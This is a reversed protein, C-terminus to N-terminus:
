FTFIKMRIKYSTDEINDKDSMESDKIIDNPDKNLLDNNVSKHPINNLEGTNPPIYLLRGAYEENSTDYPLDIRKYDPNTSDFAVPDVHVILKDRPLNSILNNINIWNSQIIHLSSTSMPPISCDTYQYCNSNNWQNIQRVGNFLDFCIETTIHNILSNSGYDCGDGFDYIYGNQISPNHENYYSRKKYRALINGNNIVLTENRLIGVINGSTLNSHFGPFCDYNAFNQNHSYNKRNKAIIEAQEKTPGSRPDIEEQHLFNVYFITNCHVPNKSLDM